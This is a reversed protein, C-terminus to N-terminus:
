CLRKNRCNSSLIKKTNELSLVFLRNAEHFSPDILHDLYPKSAQKTVKSQCKNWNNTRKFGSKLQQLLKVNEQTSLTVVLVSLRTETLTSTTAKTDDPLVCTCSWTLFPNIKRNILPMEFPKWFNSLYKLPVIREADKRDNADDAKGRTEPKFEFM